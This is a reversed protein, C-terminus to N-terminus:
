ADLKEHDQSAIDKAEKLTQVRGLCSFSDRLRRWIEWGHVVRRCTYFGSEVVGLQTHSKWIM